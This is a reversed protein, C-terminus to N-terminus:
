RGSILAEPSFALPDREDSFRDIVNFVDSMASELSGFNGMATVEVGLPTTALIISDEESAIVVGTAAVGGIVVDGFFEPHQEALLETMVELDRCSMQVGGGSLSMETGYGDNMHKVMASLGSDPFANVSFENAVQSEINGFVVSWTDSTLNSRLLSQAIVRLSTSEIVALPVADEGVTGTRASGGVSIGASRLLDLLTKAATQASNIGRNQASTLIRGDDVILASWTPLDGPALQEEVFLSGDGVIDGTIRKVGSVSLANVLVDLETYGWPSNAALFSLAASTVSPDGGGVLVLDGNVVGDVPEPGALRTSFSTDAGLVDLAVVLALLHRGSNSLRQSTSNEVAVIGNTTVRLCEADELASVAASLDEAQSRAEEWAVIAPSVRRMSVMEVLSADFATEAFQHPVTEVPQSRVQDRTWNWFGTILLLPVVAVVVLRGSVVKM